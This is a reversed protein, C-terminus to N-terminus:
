DPVRFVWRKDPTRALYASLTKEAGPTEAGIVVFAAAEL